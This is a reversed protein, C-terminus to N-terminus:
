GRVMHCVRHGHRVVCVSRMHPHHVVPRRVMAMAPGHHEDAMSPGAVAFAAVALAGLVFAKM